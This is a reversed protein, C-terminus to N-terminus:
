NKEVKEKDRGKNILIFLNIAVLMILIILIFNEKIGTRVNALSAIKNTRIKATKDVDEDLSELDMPNERVEKPKKPEVKNRETEINYKNHFNMEEVKKDSSNVLSVEDQVLQGDKETIKIYIIYIEKDQDVDQIDTKLQYLKYKYEGAKQYNINIEKEDDSKLTFKYSRSSGEPLPADKTIPELIYDFSDHPKSYPSNISINQEVKFLYNIGDAYVKAHFLFFVSLFALTLSFSLFAKLKKSRKNYM